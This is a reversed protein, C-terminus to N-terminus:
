LPPLPLMLLLPLFPLLLASQPCWKRLEDQVRHLQTMQLVKQIKYKRYEELMRHYCYSVPIKSILLVTNKIPSNTHKNSATGLYNLSEKIHTTFIIKSNIHLAVGCQPTSGAHPYRLQKLLSNVRVPLNVGGFLVPLVLLM